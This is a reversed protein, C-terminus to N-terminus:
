RAEPPLLALTGRVAAAIRPPPFRRPHALVLRAADEAAAILLRALVEHDLGRPGGRREFGWTLLGAVQAALRRRSAAIRERLAPPTGDPPRLVLRWTRPARRVAVLFAEIAGALLEDPERGAPDDPIVSALTALAAAEEREALALLLGDLDGFLDYVVPRTVGARRAVAQVTLRHFGREDVVELAADLLRRRREPAPLRPTRARV